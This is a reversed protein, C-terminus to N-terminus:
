PLGAPSGPDAGTATISASPFNSIGQGVKTATSSPISTHPDLLAEVPAALDVELKQDECDSSANKTYKGVTMVNGIELLLDALNGAADEVDARTVLYSYRVGEM